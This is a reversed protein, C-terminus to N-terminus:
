LDLNTKISQRLSQIENVTRQRRAAEWIDANLASKFLYVHGHGDIEHGERIDWRSDHSFGEVQVLSFLYQGNHKTAKKRTFLDIASYGEKRVRWASSTDGEREPYYWRFYVPAQNQALALLEQNNLPQM